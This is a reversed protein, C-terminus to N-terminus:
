STLTHGIILKGEGQAKMASGPNPIKGPAYGLFSDHSDFFRKM